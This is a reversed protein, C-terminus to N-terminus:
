PIAPMRYIVTDRSKLSRLEDRLTKVEKNTEGTKADTKQIFYHVAQQITWQKDRNDNENDVSLFRQEQRFPNYGEKLALEVAARLHEAYSISKHRGWERGRL